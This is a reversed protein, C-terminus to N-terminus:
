INKRYLVNFIKQWERRAQWTETSLDVVIRIHRDKYTLVRKDGVAKMIREKDKYKALKGIIHWPSSRNKNFRFPTRQAEQIQIDAEKGLNPFNEAIIQELVDEAGAETEEEKIIGIMHINNHKLSDSLERITREHHLIKKQRKRPKM